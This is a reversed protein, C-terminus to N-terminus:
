KCKYIVKTDLNDSCINEIIIRHDKKKRISLVNYYKDIFIFDNKLQEIQRYFHIIREIEVKVGENGPDEIERKLDVSYIQRKRSSNRTSVKRMKNDSNQTKFFDLSKSRSKSSKNNITTKIESEFKTSYTFNNKNLDSKLKIKNSRNHHVIM